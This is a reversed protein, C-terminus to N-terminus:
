EENEFGAVMGDHFKADVKPAGKSTNKSTMYMIKEGFEAIPAQRDHGRAEGRQVRNQRDTRERIEHDARGVM